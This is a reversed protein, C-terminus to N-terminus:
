LIYGLIITLSISTILYVTTQKSTTHRMRAKYSDFSNIQPKFKKYVYEVFTVPLRLCKLVKLRLKADDYFSNYDGAIQIDNQLAKPTHVVMYITYLTVSIGILANKAVSPEFLWGAFLGLTLAIMNIIHASHYPTDLANIAQIRLAEIAVALESNESYNIKIRQLKHMLKNLLGSYPYQPNPILAPVALAIKELLWIRYRYERQNNGMEYFNSKDLRLRWIIYDTSWEDIRKLAEECFLTRQNPEILMLTILNVTKRSLKINTFYKWDPHTRIISIKCAVNCAEALNCLSDIDLYKTIDPRLRTSLLENLLM